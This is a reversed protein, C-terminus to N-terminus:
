SRRRRGVREAARRRRDPSPTTSRTRGCTSSWCPPSRAARRWRSRWSGCRTRSATATTARLARETARAREAPDLRFGLLPAVLCGQRRGHAAVALLDGSERDRGVFLVERIRLTGGSEIRELAGVLQGEFPAGPDFRLRTAPRQLDRTCRRPIGRSPDPEPAPAPAPTLHATTVYAVVVAVIVLPMAALGDTGLLLTALLTSTLPLTLMVTCM